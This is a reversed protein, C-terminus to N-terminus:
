LLGMQVLRLNLGQNVIDSLDGRHRNDMDLADLFVKEISVHVKKRDKPEVGMSRRYGPSNDKTLVIEEIANSIIVTQGMKGRGLAM